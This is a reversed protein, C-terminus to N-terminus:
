VVYRHCGGLFGVFVEWAAIHLVTLLFGLKGSMVIAQWYLGACLVLLVVDSSQSFPRINALLFALVVSGLSRYSGLAEM